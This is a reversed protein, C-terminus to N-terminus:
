RDGLSRHPPAEQDDPWLLWLRGKEQMLGANKEADEGNGWFVDARVPGVIAIGTDQSIMLREMPQRTSPHTTQMFVLSGPPIVRADSAISRLPALPVTLSGPPGLDPAGEAQERFFIYRPNANMVDPAQQPNDRLWRKITQASVDGQALHGRDVMVRGIPRYSHGNTDGFVVRITSGDRLKVRGSGQIHLFFADIPDDLWILEQGNLVGRSDIEARTYYPVVRDQLLRGRLRSSATSAAPDQSSPIDIRVLDTPRKYLPAQRDNEKGRSGSLIPEYYGTILGADTNDRGLVSWAKFRKAIWPKLDSRQQAFEACLRLWPGPPAILDCQRQIAADMGALDDASWGPLSDPAISTAALTGGIVTLETSVCAALASAAIFAAALKAPIKHLM